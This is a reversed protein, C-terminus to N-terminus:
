KYYEKRKDLYSTVERVDYYNKNSFKAIGVEGSEYMRKLTEQSISLQKLVEKQPLYPIKPEETKKLKAFMIDRFDSSFREIIRDELTM